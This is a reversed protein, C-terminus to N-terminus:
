RENFTDTWISKLILTANSEDTEHQIFNMM